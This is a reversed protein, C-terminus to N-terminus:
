SNKVRFILINEMTINKDLKCNEGETKFDHQVAANLSAEDMQILGYYNGGNAKPDFRSERFMLAALDEPNCNLRKSM